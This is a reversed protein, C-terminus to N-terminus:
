FIPSASLKGGGGGGQFNVNLRNQPFIFKSTHITGLFNPLILQHSCRYHLQPRIRNFSDLRKIKQKKKDFYCGGGAGGGWGGANQLVDDSEKLQADENM